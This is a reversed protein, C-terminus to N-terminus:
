IFLLIPCFSFFESISKLFLNHCDYFANAIFQFIIQSIRAQNCKENVLNLTEVVFLVNFLLFSLFESSFKSFITLSMFFVVFM